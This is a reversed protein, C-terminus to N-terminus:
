GDEAAVRAPNNGSSARGRNLYQVFAKKKAGDFGVSAFFDHADNRSTASLLMLKTCARSRAIAELEAFLARGVGRRRFASHVVVNEIVGYPQAGYMADRCLSLFATGQITADAVAVLLVNWDDREIEALRSPDVRINSDGPVLERYLATLASADDPCARRIM